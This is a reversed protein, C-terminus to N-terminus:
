AADRLRHDAVPSSRLRQAHRSALSVSALAVLDLPAAPAAKPHPTAPSTAPVVQAEPAALVPAQVPVPRPGPAPAPAPAAVPIPTPAPTARPAADTTEAAAEEPARALMVSAMFWIVGVGLLVDGVSFPYSMPLIPPLVDALADLRTGRGTFPLITETVENTFGPQRYWTPMHTFLEWGWRGTPMRGGNAMIVIANSLAGLAALPLGRHHRNLYMCAGIAAISLVWIPRGLMPSGYYIGSKYVAHSGFVGVFALWPHHIQVTALRGVRGGRLLIVVFAMAFLPLLFM